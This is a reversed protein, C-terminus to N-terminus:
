PRSLAAGGARERRRMRQRRRRRGRGRLHRCGEAALLHNSPATRQVRSSSSPDTPAAGTQTSSTSGTPEPSPPPAPLSRRRRRSTARGIPKAPRDPGTPGPRSHPTSTPQKTLAFASAVPHRRPRRHPATASTQQSGAAHGASSASSAPPRAHLLGPRPPTCCPPALRDPVTAGQWGHEGLKAPPDFDPRFGAGVGTPASSPSAKQAGNEKKNADNHLKTARSSSLPKIIEPHFGLSRRSRAVTVSADSGRQLRRRPTM